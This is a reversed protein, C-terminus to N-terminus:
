AWNAALNEFLYVNYNGFGAATQDYYGVSSQSAALTNGSLAIATGFYDATGSVGNPNRLTVPSSLGSGINTFVNVKGLANPGAQPAGIALTNGDLAISQINASDYYAAGANSQGNRWGAGKEFLQVGYLLSGGSNYLSTTSAIRNGSIAVNSGIGYGVLAAALTGNEYVYIRGSLAGLLSNTGLNQDGYYADGVIATNGDIALDVGNSSAIFKDTATLPGLYNPNDFGHGGSNNAYTNWAGNIRRFQQVIGTQNIGYRTLLPSAYAMGLLAYDGSIAFSPSYGSDKNPDTYTFNPTTDRDPYSMSSSFISDPNQYSKLTAQNLSGGTSGTIYLTNGSYTMGGGGYINLPNSPSSAFLQGNGNRYFALKHINNARFYTDFGEGAWSGPGNYISPAQTNTFVNQILSASPSPGKPDYLLLDDYFVTGTNPTFSAATLESTAVLVSGLKAGAASTFRGSSINQLYNIGGDHIQAAYVAGVNTKTTRDEDFGPDTVYVMVRGDQKVMDFAYGFETGQIDRSFPYEPNIAKGKYNPTLGTIRGDYGAINPATTNVAGSRWGTGKAFAYVAGYVYDFSGQYTPNNANRDLVAVYDDVIRASIGGSYNPYSAGAFGSIRAAINGSEFIYVVGELYATSERRGVIVATEGSLSVSSGFQTGASYAETTARAGFGEITSRFENLSDTVTGITINKPDLLWQGNAGSASRASADVTGSVGLGALGSTEVTGGDGSVSGGRATITGAFETTGDAWAVVTGGQGSEATADARLTTKDGIYTRSANAQDQVLAGQYGGGVLVTGGGTAGSADVTAGLLSVRDGLLSVTGGQGSSATADLTASVLNVGPGSRVTINGGASTGSADLLGASTLLVERKADINITGGSGSTGRALMETDSTIADTKITITGGSQGSVDQTGGYNEVNAAEIRIDGGDTGRTASVTGTSQVTGNAATLYVRGDKETVGTAQILGTNNGALAYINGNFTRLEAALAQIRGENSVKHDREGLSVAYAGNLWGADTVVDIQTGAALGVRGAPANITGLNSVTYGALLVDGTTSSIKGLNTVGKPSNGFLSFGGGRLFDANSIDLTSAVFAGGTLVQGDAGIIIGNRNILFLSGTATLRGNISSADLGTVRNLTAGSSNNFNVAHGAGVNFSDWNVIGFKSSQNIDMRTGATQIRLEGNVVTAGSPLPGATLQHSALAVCLCFRLGQKLTPQPASVPRASRSKLKM